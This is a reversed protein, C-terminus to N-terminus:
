KKKSSLGHNSGLNGTFVGPPLDLSYRHNLYRILEVPPKGHRTLKGEIQSGLILNTRRDMFQLNDICNAACKYSEFYSVPHQKAALHTNFFKIPIIHDVTASSFTLPNGYPDRPEPHTGFRSEPHTGFRSKPHTGFRSEPHTGFRSEPHTGFQAEWLREKFAKSFKRRLLFTM